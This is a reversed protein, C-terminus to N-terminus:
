AARHTGGGGTRDGFKWASWRHIVEDVRMSRHALRWSPYEGCRTGVSRPFTILSLRRRHFGESMTILDSFETMRQEAGSTSVEILGVATRPRPHANRCCVHSRRTCVPDGGSLDCYSHVSAARGTTRVTSPPGTAPYRPWPYRGFYRSTQRTENRVRSGTNRGVRGFDGITAVLGQNELSMPQTRPTASGRRAM